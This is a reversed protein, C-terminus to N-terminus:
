LLIKFPSMYQISYRVQIAAGLAAAFIRCAANDGPGAASTAASASSSPVPAASM